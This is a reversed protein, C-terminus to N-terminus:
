LRITASDTHCIKYLYCNHLNNFFIECFEVMFMLSADMETNGSKKRSVGEFSNTIQHGVVVTWIRFRRSNGSIRTCYHDKLYPPAGTM